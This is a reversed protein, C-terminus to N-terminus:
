FDPDTVALALGSLDGNDLSRRHSRDVLELRGKSLHSLSQDELHYDMSDGATQIDGASLRRTPQSLIVRRRKLEVQHVAQLPATDGRVESIVLQSSVSRRVETGHGMSMSEEQPRGLDVHSLTGIDSDAQLPNAMGDRLWRTGKRLPTRRDPARMFQGYPRVVDDGSAEFLKPCFRDSHGLIGCIFCFTPLREYKFTVWFSDDVSRKIKMRRKLPQEIDLLM